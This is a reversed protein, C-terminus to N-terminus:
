APFETKQGVARLTDTSHSINAVKVGLRRNCDGLRFGPVTQLDKGSFREASNTPPSEREQTALRQGRRYVGDLWTVLARVTCEGFCLLTQNAANGDQRVRLKVFEERTKV